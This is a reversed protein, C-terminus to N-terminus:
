TNDGNDWMNSTKVIHNQFDWEPHCQRGDIVPLFFASFPLFPDYWSFYPIFIASHLVLGVFDDLVTFESFAQHGCEHGIAWMGAFVMGQMDHCGPTDEKVADEQPQAVCTGFSWDCDCVTSMMLLPRQHLCNWRHSWPKLHAANSIHNSVCFSVVPCNFCCSDHQWPWRAWWLRGFGIWTVIYNSSPGLRWCWVFVLLQEVAKDWIYLCYACVSKPCQAESSTTSFIHMGHWFPLALLLVWMTHCETVIVKRMQSAILM